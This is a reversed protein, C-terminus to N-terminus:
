ATAAAVWSRAPIALSGDPQAWREAVHELAAIVDREAAEDMRSAADAVRMSLAAQARWWAHVSPYRQVFDVTEVLPDIFGAAELHEAIVGEPAWAFQGPEGPQGADILGRDLLARVPASSWRNDEPGTFAALAVRGDSRLVRRSERLASEPDAMLQFGWRCLVADVSAAPVDIPVDADIQKFRVNRIGLGEARRQAAALMEPVFDSTILVGHPAILEAALFGTDGMGAALELVTHGPQPDIAEIMWGSVPMSARRMAEAQGEWGGATAAWRKRSRQRYDDPVGM